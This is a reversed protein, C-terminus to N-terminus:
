VHHGYIILLENIVLRRDVACRRLEPLIARKQADIQQMYHPEFDHLILLGQLALRM